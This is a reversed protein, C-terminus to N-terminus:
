NSNPHSKRYESPSVGKWERFSKTFYSADLFGCQAGIEAVGHKTSILLEAAKQLRFEKVYQMPPMGIVSRFCRLCESESISASGAISAADIEASYNEQIYRAMTKMRAEDRLEKKSPPKSVASCHSVLLFVIQSLANRVEFEFGLPEEACARWATELTQLTEEHWPEGCDFYFYKLMANGTLPGMYKRWFVTEVGGGVLRPHFVLSHLQCDSGDKNWMAHFVGSNIFFGEGQKVTFRETGVAVTATGEMIILIELETHWHWPVSEKKLDDNYNAIPFQAAGHRTLERGKENTETRCTYRTM